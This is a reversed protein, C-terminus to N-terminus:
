DGTMGKGTMGKVTMGKGTMGKVAAGSDMAGQAAAGQAAAGQAAKGRGEDGEFYQLTGAEPTISEPDIPPVDGDRGTAVLWRETFDVYSHRARKWSEEAVLVSETTYAGEDVAKASEHIFYVADAFRKHIPQLNEHALPIAEIVDVTGIKNLHEGLIEEADIFQRKDLVTSDFNFSELLRGQLIIAQGLLKYRQDIQNEYSAADESPIQDNSCATLAGAMGMVIAMMSACRIFSIKIM